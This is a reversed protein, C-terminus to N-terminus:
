GPLNPFIGQRRSPFNSFHRSGDQGFRLEVRSPSAQTKFPGANFLNSMLFGQFDQSIFFGWHHLPTTFPEAIATQV